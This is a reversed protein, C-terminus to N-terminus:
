SRQGSWRDAVAALPLMSFWPGACGSTGAQFDFVRLSLGGPTLSPTYSCLNSCLKGMNACYRPKTVRAGLNKLHDSAVRVCLPLRLEDVILIIAFNFRIIIICFM